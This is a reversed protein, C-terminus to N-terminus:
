FRERLVHNGHKSAGDDLLWPREIERKLRPRLSKWEFVRNKSAAVRSM